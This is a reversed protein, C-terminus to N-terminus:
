SIWSLHNENVSKWGDTTLGTTRFLTIDGAGLCDDAFMLRVSLPFFMRLLYTHLMSKNWQLILNYLFLVIDVSSVFKLIIWHISLVRYDNSRIGLLHFFSVIQRQRRCFNKVIICSNQHVAYDILGNLCLPKMALSKSNTQWVNICIFM